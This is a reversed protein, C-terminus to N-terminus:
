EVIRLHARSVAPPEAQQQQRVKTDPTSPFRHGGVEYRGWGGKGTSAYPHRTLALKFTMSVPLSYIYIDGYFRRPRRIVTLLPQCIFQLNRAALFICNYMCVNKVM